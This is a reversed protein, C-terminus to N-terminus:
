KYEVGMEKLISEVQPRLMVPVDDITKKGKIILTAYLEVMKNIGKTNKTNLQMSMIELMMEFIDASALMNMLIEADQVEQYNNISGIDTNAKDVKESLDLTNVKSELVYDNLVDIVKRASEKHAKGTFGITTLRSCGNVINYCSINNNILNDFTLNIINTCGSYMEDAKSVSSFDFNPPTVMSTCNKFMGTTNQVKSTDTQSLNVIRLTQCNAFMNEFNNASNPLRNVNLLTQAVSSHPNLGANNPYVKGQITYLGSKSYRHTSTNHSYTGDGWEVTGDLIIDGLSIAYDDEPIEVVYIGTNATDFGHGGWDFPIGNLQGTHGDITEINICNYYCDAHNISYTYKKNWNSTAYKMNTCNKFCDTVDVVNLPLDIDSILKSGEFGGKLTFRTKPFVVRSANTLDSNKFIYDLKSANPFKAITNNVFTADEFTCGEFLSTLDTYDLQGEPMTIVLRDLDLGKFIGKYDLEYNRLDLTGYPRFWPKDESGDRNTNLHPNTTTPAINFNIGNKVKGFGAMDLTKIKMNKFDMGEFSGNVHTATVTTGSTNVNCQDSVWINSIDTVGTGYQLKFDLEELNKPVILTKLGKIVCNSSIKKLNNLKGLDLIANDLFNIAYANSSCNLSISTINPCNSLGVYGLTGTQGVDLMNNFGISSLNPMNEVTVNKLRKFGNFNLTTLDLSNRITLNNCYVMSAMTTNISNNTSTNLKKISTCDRINVTYLSDPVEEGTYGYPLGLVELLPQKILSVSQVTKPYYVERLSGGNSNFLVETLSTGSTDVYKLYNCKSLDLTTGVATVTGLASCGSLDLKRLFKNETVNINYLLPSHIEVETLKNANALLCSSLNLNSLDDLRKIHKSHYVIVEQDTSTTSNFTFTAPKNREVRITQTGGTANSWKVSFYLPIYSTVSFSVQGTKNMRMIVQEHQSTFYELMSDVYAIRERLWRKVHHDKSGHCCYTYLSGFDLYKKQADVNQYRAPIRAIQEDYVYKMINDLTFSKQRMLAWEERLEKAFYNMVKTWLNSNSTNFVGEEIECDPSIVLYGTNDSGLSTDLDYFTPYWIRGDFSVIKMNKGLSDVGGVMLVTLLYRFLYERNFHNDLTERFLDYPAVSVWQVLEKIETYNDSASSRNGYLLKFDRAYYDRESVNASSEANEGYQYFAGASTNSNSNIEYVLLNPYKKYDYGFSQTSYRDHNLNMIGIYENNIYVEIPFGNIASRCNPNDIQSPLKTDYVCDNIFKALGTNSSHSSEIFDAKLCWVDEAMSGEGFPNYYMPSGFEDKLYITYNKIPYALSSTGQIHVPNNQIGTNFSSGFKEENPSIYEIRMDVTQTPTMNTTDGFLKMKPLTTNNYNFNYMEEQKELDKINALHNQLVQESTLAHGYVRFRKINNTGCNLGKTSNLYIYSDHSFDEYFRNTGTGDDTLFMIRSLVANIYIKVFCNERDLVYTLHIEGSEDDLHTKSATAGSSASSVITQTIDAFVGKFPKVEDNSNENIVTTYDLVRCDEIGSNIPTYIIDITSGNLANSSWPSWPIEVYADNDCVLENNIFGNTGFNFGILKGNHGNGSEDIWVDGTSDQNSKGSANLDCLLGYSYDEVPVYVGKEVELTLTLTVEESRDDSYAKITLTHVGVGLNTITWYYSGVTLRQTKEIKGDMILEVTYTETSIKSLRYDVLIPVGYTFKSGNVFKSSLYLETTSVIAVNFAITNSTYKGVTAYMSISHTGLSLGLSSLDYENYGKTSPIQYTEGNVTLHLIIEEDIGTELNYSLKIPDTVGYDVEYDFNSTLTIGGSIVNFNLQNSAVGARDRVYIGVINETETLYSGLIKINNNGQKVTDNGVEMNNVSIYATGTGGSPSTFFVPITLDQGKEVECDTFTSSITPVINSGGGGGNAMLWDINEENKSVRVKLADINVRNSEVKAELEFNSRAKKSALERLAGEVNDSEFNGEIDLISTQIAKQDVIWEGKSNKIKLSM